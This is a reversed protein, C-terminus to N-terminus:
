AIVRFDIHLLDGRTIHRSLEQVVARETKGDIVLAVEGKHAGKRFITRLAVDNCQVPVGKYGGGYVVAPVLGQARLQKVQKGIITRPQTEITFEAM